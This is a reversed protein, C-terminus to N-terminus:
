SYLLVLKEFLYISCFISFLLNTTEFIPQPIGGHLSLLLAANEYIPNSHKIIKFTFCNRYDPLLIFNIFVIQWILKCRKIFKKEQGDRFFFFLYIIKPFAPFTRPIKMFGVSLSIFFFLVDMELLLLSLSLLIIYLIPTTM